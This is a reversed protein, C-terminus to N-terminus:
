GRICESEKESICVDMKSAGERGRSKEGEKEIRRNRGERLKERVERNGKGVYCAM